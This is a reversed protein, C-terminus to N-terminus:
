TNAHEQMPGPRVLRSRVVGFRWAVFFEVVGIAGYAWGAIVVRPGDAFLVAVACSLVGVVAYGGFRAASELTDNVEVASLVLSSRRGYAHGYLLALLGWVLAFGVGYIM